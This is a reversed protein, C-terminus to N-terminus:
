KSEKILDRIKAALEYNEDNIADQLREELSKQKVIHKKKVNIPNEVMEVLVFDGKEKHWTKKEFTFGDEVFREVKDPKGLDAEMDFKIPNNTLDKFNFLNEIIKELGDLKDTAEKLKRKIKDEENEEKM